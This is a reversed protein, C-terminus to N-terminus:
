KVKKSYGTLYDITYGEQVNFIYVNFSVSNDEISQAQMRIGRCVKEMGRFIPTVQYRVHNGSDRIYNAVLNEYYVMSSQQNQFNANLSRTGTFLNEVKDNQGTLQFGILHSRNYLYDTKGNFIIKKNHWGSPKVHGIDKRKEVPMSQKNLLANAQGVRNLIDLNSYKEWHGDKTELEKKTFTPQNNNLQLVQNTGDFEIEKLDALIESDKSENEKDDTSDIGLQSSIDVQTFVSVVNNLVNPQLLIVTVFFVVVFLLKNKKM